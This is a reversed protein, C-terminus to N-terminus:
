CVTNESDNVKGAIYNKNNDVRLTKIYSDVCLTETDNMNGSM